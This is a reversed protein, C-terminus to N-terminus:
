STSSAAQLQDFDIAKTPPSPVKSTNFKRFTVQGPNGVTKVLALPYPAGKAAVYLTGPEDGDDTLPIAATGQFRAAAGKALTGSQSLMAPGIQDIDALKAMAAFDPNASTSKIWRQDLLSGLQAQGTLKTWAAAGGKFYVNAGAVVIDFQAGNLFVSGGGAGHAAVLNLTLREEETNITGQITVSKAQQFAAKADALIQEAPKAAEGTVAAGAVGPMSFAFVVAAALGALARSKV